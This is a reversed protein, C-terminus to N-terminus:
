DWYYHLRYLFFDDSSGIPAIETGTNRELPVPEIEMTSILIGEKSSFMQKTILYIGSYQPDYEIARIFKCDESLLEKALEESVSQEAVTESLIEQWSYANSLIDLTTEEFQKSYWGSYVNYILMCVMCEVLVSIYILRRKKM